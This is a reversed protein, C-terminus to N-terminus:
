GLFFFLQTNTNTQFEAPGTSGSSQMSPSSPWCWSRMQRMRQFRPSSCVFHLDCRFPWCGAFGVFTVSVPWLANSCSPLALVAPTGDHRVPDGDRDGANDSRLRHPGLSHEVSHEGGDCGTTRQDCRSTAVSQQVAVAAVGDADVASAACVVQNNYAPDDSCFRGVRLRHRRLHHGDTSRRM